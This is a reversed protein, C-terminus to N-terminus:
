LRTHRIVSFLSEFKVKNQLKEVFGIPDQLAKAQQEYLIDLDKWIFSIGFTTFGLFMKLNKKLIYGQSAGKIEFPIKHSM